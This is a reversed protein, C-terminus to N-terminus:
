GANSLIKAVVEGNRKILYGEAGHSWANFPQDPYPTYRYVWIVDGEEIQSKFELWRNNLFGFALSPAGYESDCVQEIREIEDLTIERTCEGHDMATEEDAVEELEEEDLHGKLRRLLNVAIIPWGIVAIIKALGDAIIRVASIYFPVGDPFQASENLKSALAVMQDVKDCFLPHRHTLWKQLLVILIGVVCYIGLYTM